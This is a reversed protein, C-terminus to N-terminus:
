EYIDLFKFLKGLETKSNIGQKYIDQTTGLQTDMIQFM